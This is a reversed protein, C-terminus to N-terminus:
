KRYRKAIQSVLADVQQKDDIILVEHGISKLYGHRVLQIATPKKGKSKIEAWMVKGNPLVILRDPYGVMNANSYKLCAIRITKLQDVLYSEINKESIDAHEVINKIQSKM